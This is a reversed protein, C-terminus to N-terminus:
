NSRCAGSTPGNLFRAGPIHGAAYEAHSRTDVILASGDALIRRVRETSVEETKQNPEALTAQFINGAQAMVDCTLLVLALAAIASVSVTRNM